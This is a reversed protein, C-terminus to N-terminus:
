VLSLPDLLAAIRVPQIFMCCRGAPASKVVHVHRWAFNKERGVRLLGMVQQCQRLTRMFAVRSLLRSRLCPLLCLDGGKTFRRASAELLMARSSCLGVGVSPKKARRM